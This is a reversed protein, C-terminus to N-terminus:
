QIGRKKDLRKLLAMYQDRQAIPCGVYTPQKYDTYLVADYNGLVLFGNRQLRALQAKSLNRRKARAKGM